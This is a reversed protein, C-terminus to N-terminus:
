DNNTIVIRGTSKRALLRQLGELARELPYTESVHPRIKGEDYWSLLTQMSSRLVEPKRDLYAPWNLGIIDINKVLVHNAPIQPIRGGAFGIVLIRGEFNISRLSAMFLDGGVPDYVVDVGRGDTLAKIRVRVDDQSSNVLHDAGHQRAVELKESSSAIAIVRAGLQKGIEVATLGVGGAAGHVVLVEKAKLRARYALAVHSTGYAVPFAAAHAYPMPSPIRIIQTAPLVTQEAYGGVYAIGLVRDGIQFGEIGTGIEVIDGSVEFGPSFPLPPKVQYKGATILSDAFNIGCARVALRVQGPGPVPVPIEELTLGSPGSFDHCLIAKM